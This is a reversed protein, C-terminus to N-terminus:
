SVMSNKGSSYQDRVIFMIEKLSTRAKQQTIYYM